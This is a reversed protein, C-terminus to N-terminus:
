LNEDGFVYLVRQARADVIVVSNWGASEVRIRDSDVYFTQLPSTGDQHVITLGGRVPVDAVIPAADNHARCGEGISSLALTLVFVWRAHLGDRPSTPRVSELM